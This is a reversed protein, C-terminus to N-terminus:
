RRTLRPSTGFGSGSGSSSGSGYSRLLTLFKIRKPMSKPLLEHILAM